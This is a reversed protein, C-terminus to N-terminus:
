ISAYYIEEIPLEFRRKDCVFESGNDAAITILDGSISIVIYVKGVTLNNAAGEDDICRVSKGVEISM